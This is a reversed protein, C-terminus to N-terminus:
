QRSVVISAGDPVVDFRMYDVDNKTYVTADVPEGGQRVHAGAWSSPKAMRVTLPVNFVNALLGTELTFEVRSGATSTVTLEANNREILYRGVEGIPAVYLRDGYSAIHDYHARFESEPRASWGVGDEGEQGIGHCQEVLWGGQSLVWDTTDNWMWVPLTNLNAWSYLHLLPPNWTDNTQSYDTIGQHGSRAFMFGMDELVAIVNSDFYEYPYIVTSVYDLGNVSSLLFENCTELEARM